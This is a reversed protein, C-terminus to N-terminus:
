ALEKKFIRKSKERLEEQEYDPDLHINSYGREELLKKVEYHLMKDGESYIEKQDTLEQTVDSSDTRIVVGEYENPIWKLASIIGEYIVSTKGVHSGGYDVISADSHITSGNKKIDYAYAGSQQELPESVGSVNITVGDMLGHNIYFLRSEPYAYIDFRQRDISNQLEEERYFAWNPIVSSLTSEFVVLIVDESASCSENLQKVTKGESEIVYEGANEDPLGIVIATDEESINSDGVRDGISVTISM